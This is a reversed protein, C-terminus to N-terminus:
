GEFILEQYPVLEVGKAACHDDLTRVDAWTYPSRDRSPEPHREYRFAAKSFLHIEQYGLGAAIDILRKAAEVKPTKGHTICFEWGLRMPPRNTEAAGVICVM